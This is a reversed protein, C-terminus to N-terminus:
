YCAKITPTPMYPTISYRKGRFHLRYDMLAKVKLGIDRRYLEINSVFILQIRQYDQDLIAKFQTSIFDDFCTKFKAILNDLPLSSGTQINKLEVVALAYGKEKCKLVILCDPAPPRKEINQSNYYDDVKLIVCDGQNITSDFTVSVENEACEDCLLLSLQPDQIIKDIM